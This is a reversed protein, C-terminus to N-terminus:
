DCRRLRSDCCDEELELAAASCATHAPVQRSAAPGERATILGNRAKRSSLTNLICSAVYNCVSLAAVAISLASIGLIVQALPSLDGVSPADM